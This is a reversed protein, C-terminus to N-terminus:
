EAKMLTANLAEPKIKYAGGSVFDIVLGILGGIVLNGWIWGSVGRTVALEAPEYGEKEVRIIAERRRSLDLMLPTQGKIVGDLYVTAGTPSSSVGVTQYTGNFITACSINTASLLALVLCLSTARFYRKMKRMMM